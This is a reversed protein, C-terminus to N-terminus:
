LMFSTTLVVLVSFLMLNCTMTNMSGNSIDDKTRSLASSLYGKEGIPIKWIFMNTQTLNRRGTVFMDLGNAVLWLNQRDDMAFTDIWRLSTKNSIVLQQNFSNHKAPNISWKYVSNTTLGGFYLAKDTFVMGDTLDVKRGVSEVSFIASRNRLLATPVRYLSYGNLACFYLFRFDFSM